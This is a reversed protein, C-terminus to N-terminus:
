AEIRAVAFRVIDGPQLLAPPNACPDFLKVSTLGLVHWGSPGPQPMIGTQPGGIIVAGEPISARPSTRRPRALAPDLGSLYPFGPMAGIAAVSYDAAAHRRVAEAVPLGCHDAWELLDEGNPGGYHVPIEVIKGAVAGPEVDRWMQRLNGRLDEHDMALADFAVLLNNMGPVADRVGELRRAAAALAWVRRQVDPSFRGEAADLLLGGSGALDIKPEAHSAM